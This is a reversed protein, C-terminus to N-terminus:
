QGYRKVTVSDGISISMLDEGAELPGSYEERTRSLIEQITVEPIDARRPRTYHTYVALKPKIRAFDRGAQEPTSHHTAIMRRVDPDKELLEPRAAAVEHVVVDAGQAYKIFNENSTMDGSIVVAHGEYDVRFGFANELNAHKVKFATVRVGNQDYVIGEQIDKAAIAVQQPSLNPFLERRNQIDAQYAKELYSMMEVTGKPGWVGFASNRRGYPMTMFGTLWLDPIGVTHDSHLHTIFLKLTGLPIKLQWLRITAGRGCDFLLKENGAEVLTSPGFRDPLPNPTSTGLLTVKFDSTSPHAAQGIAESTGALLLALATVIQVQVYAPSKRM